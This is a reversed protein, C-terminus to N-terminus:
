LYIIDPCNVQLAYKKGSKDKGKRQAPITGKINGRTAIMSVKQNDVWTLARLRYEANVASKIDGRAPKPDVPRKDGKKRKTVWSAEEPFGVRNKQTTGVLHHHRKLVDLALQPSCFFRDAFITTGEDCDKTLEKTVTEGYHHRTKEGPRLGEEIKFRMCYGTDSCAMMWLKFGWKVIKKPLYQRLYTRGKYAVIAEDVSVNTGATWACGFAANMTDTFARLKYLKDYGPGPRRLGARAQPRQLTARALDSLLPALHYWDEQVPRAVASWGPFDEELILRLRGAKSRVDDVCYCLFDHTRAYMILVCSVHVVLCVVLIGIFKLLVEADIDIWAMGRRRRLVEYLHKGYRNTEEVISDQLATSFLRRFCAFPTSGLPIAFRPKGAREQPLDEESLNGDM